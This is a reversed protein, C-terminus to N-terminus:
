APRHYNSEVTATECHSIVGQKDAVISWFLEVPFM